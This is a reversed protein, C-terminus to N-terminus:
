IIIPFRDSQAANIYTNVNGAAQQSQYALETIGAPQCWYLTM